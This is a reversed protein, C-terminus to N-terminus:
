SDENNHESYEKDEEDDYKIAHQCVLCLNLLATELQAAAKVEEHDSHDFTFTICVGGVMRNRVQGSTRSTYEKSVGNVCVSLEGKKMTVAHVQAPDIRSGEKYEKHTLRRLAEHAKSEAAHIAEMRNHEVRERETMTALIDLKQRRAEKRAAVEEETLRPRGMITLEKHRTPARTPARPPAVEIIGCPVLWTHLSKSFM